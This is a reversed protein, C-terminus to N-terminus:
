FVLLNFYFKLRHFVTRYTKGTKKVFLNKMLLGSRMMISIIPSYFKEHCSFRSLFLCVKCRITHYSETPRKGAQFSSGIKMPYEKGDVLGHNLSSM